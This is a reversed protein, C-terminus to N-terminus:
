LVSQRSELCPTFIETLRETM